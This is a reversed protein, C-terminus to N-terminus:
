DTVQYLKVIKKELIDIEELDALNFGM